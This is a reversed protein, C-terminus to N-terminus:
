ARKICTNEHVYKLASIVTKKDIGSKIILQGIKKILVFDGNKKDFAMIKLVKDINLNDVKIPLGATIINNLIDEYEKDSLLKESLSIKAAAAIGLAVCEGHSLDIKTSEIAHGITHGLNLKARINKSDLPDMIVSEIKIKQCQSILDILKIKNKLLKNFIIIKKIDPKGWGVWYKIMEGLGSRIERVPLSSLIDVDSIVMNPQKFTGIMNKYMARKSIWLDVGTKGGIAADIQGLLTTPIYICDIGRLLISSIFGGIDTIVGGGIAILCSKRNIGKKFFPKIFKVINNLNKSKEDSPVISRVIQKGSNQLSKIIKKGYLNNVNKDILLLINSYASINTIVKHLNPLLNSGCIYETQQTETNIKINTHLGIIM